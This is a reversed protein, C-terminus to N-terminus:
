TLLNNVSQLRKRVSYEWILNTNVARLGAILKADKHYEAMVGQGSLSMLFAEIDKKDSENPTQACSIEFLLTKTREQYLDVLAQLIDLLLFVRRQKVLLFILEEFPEPLEIKECLKQILKRKESRDVGALILFYLVSPIFRLKTIAVRMNFFVDRSFSDGYVNFFAQAYRYALTREQINM